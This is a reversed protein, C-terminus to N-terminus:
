QASAPAVRPRTNSMVTSVSARVSLEAGLVVNAGHEGGGAGAPQQQEHQADTAPAPSYRWPVMAEVRSKVGLRSLTIAAWASAQAM